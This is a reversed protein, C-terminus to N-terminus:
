VISSTVTSRRHEGLTVSRRGDRRTFGRLPNTRGRALLGKTRKALWDSGFEEEFVVVARALNARALEGTIIALTSDDSLM